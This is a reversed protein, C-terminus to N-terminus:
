RSFDGSFNLVIRISNRENGRHSESVWFAMTQQVVKETIRKQVPYTELNHMPVLRVPGHSKPTEAGRQTMIYVSRPLDKCCNKVSLLVDFYVIRYMPDYDVESRDLVATEGDAVTMRRSNTILTVQKPTIEFDPVHSRYLPGPFRNNNENSERYQNDPDIHVVCDVSCTNGPWAAPISFSLDGPVRSILTRQNVNLAPCDVLLIVDSHSDFASLIHFKIKGEFRNYIVDRIAYDRGTPGLQSQHPQTVPTRTKVRATPLTVQTEQPTACAIVQFSASRGYTQGNLSSVQVRYYGRSVSAPLTWKDRGDNPVPNKMSVLSGNGLVLDLKVQADPLQTHDWRIILKGGMCPKDSANPRTVTIGQAGAWLILGFFLFLFCINKKM